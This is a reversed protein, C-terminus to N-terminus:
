RQIGKDNIIKRFLLKLFTLPIGRGEKLAITDMYIILISLVKSDGPPVKHSWLDIRGPVTFDNPQM